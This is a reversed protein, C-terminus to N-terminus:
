TIEKLGQFYIEKIRDIMEHHSFHTKARNYGQIGMKLRLEKNDILKTIADMLGVGDKPKVLLGTVENQVVESIGGVDFAIVPKQNWMAELSVLGFTERISPMVLIDIGDYAYQLEEHMLFGTFIVSNSLQNQGIYKKFDDELSGNGIVVLKVRSNNMKKVVDFIYYHGKEIELRGIIGLLIDETNIGFKKRFQNDKGLVKDVKICNHVIIIKNSDVNAKEQLFLKVAESVAIIKATILSLWYYMFLHLKNKIISFEENYSSWSHETFIIVKVGALKAAIRGILGSIGLHAHVVDIHQKKIIKYVNRIARFDYRSPMPISFVELNHERFVKELEGGCCLISVKFRCDKNIESALDIVHVETGAIHSSLIIYLLNITKEIIFM